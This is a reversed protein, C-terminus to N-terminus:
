FIGTDMRARLMKIYADGVAREAAAVGAKLVLLLEHQDVADPAPQQHATVWALHLEQYAERADIFAHEEPLRCADRTAPLQLLPATKM